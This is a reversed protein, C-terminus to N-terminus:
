SGTTGCVPNPGGRFILNILFTIDGINVNNDGSADAQDNCVPLPEFFFIRRVLTTVDGINVNNDGNADGATECCGSVAQPTVIASHPSYDGFNNEAIVLYDYTTDASATSDVYTNGTVGRDGLDGAPNDVRFFSGGAASVRRYVHYTLGVVPNWNVTVVDDTGRTANLGTPRLPWSVVGLQVNEQQFSNSPIVASLEFGNQTQINSFYYRYPNGAAETLYNQFDDYWNGSEYGAGVSSEIRIEEDTNDLFGFFLLQNGAPASQDPNKVLGFISGQSFAIQPTLGLM